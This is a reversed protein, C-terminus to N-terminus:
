SAPPPVVAARICGLSEDESGQMRTVIYASGNQLYGSDFRLVWSGDRQPRVNYRSAPLEQGDLDTAALHRQSDVKSVRLVVARTNAALPLQACDNSRMVPQMDFIATESSDLSPRQLASAYWGGLGSVVMAGVFSAAMGWGGWWHKKYQRATEMVVADPLHSKIVRWTEVDNVCDTCGMMHVEIAEQAHEDLERAVYAAATQNAKFHM